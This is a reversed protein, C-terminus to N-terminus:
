VGFSKKTSNAAICSFYFTILNYNTQLWKVNVFSLVIKVSSHALELNTHTKKDIVFFFIIKNKYNLYLM